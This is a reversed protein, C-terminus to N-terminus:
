SGGGGAKKPKRKANQKGKVKRGPPEPRFARVTSYGTLYLREGDTIAPNYEGLEHEFVKKGTRIDYGLTGIAEGIVSFYAVNGIVSGAGTVQGGVNQQWRTAGTKADLAYVNNDASGIYVTPPTGPSDAVAPGSYVEAGTSKSWAIEGTDMDVSYVRSDISGFYVRGFAVAPTSYVGGGRDFSGGITDIRWEERGTEADISFVEGAYNGGYVNDKGQALAGKIAGGTEVTWKIQGDEQDLAFVTGCECGFIVLRDKFALPSSESRGPLPTRWLVKGDRPRLAVAQGPELNTAFLRDHSLAPSTANLKGIKREWVVKGNKADIALFRSEIDMVYIRDDVIIPSFELLKGFHASWDSNRYPPRVVKSPFYRTRANNLGYTPWNVTTDKPEDPKPQKQEGDVFDINDNSVDPPRKLAEYALAGLGAAAIAAVGMTIVRRRVSWSRWIAILKSM